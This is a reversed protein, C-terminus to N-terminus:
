LKTTSVPMKMISGCLGPVITDAQVIVKRV